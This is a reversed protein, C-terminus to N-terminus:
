LANLESIWQNVKEADAVTTELPCKFTVRSPRALSEIVRSIDSDLLENGTLKILSTLKQYAVDGNGVVDFNDPNRGIGKIAGDIAADIESSNEDIHIYGEKDEYVVMNSRIPLVPIINNKDGDTDCQLGNKYVNMIAKILTILQVIALKDNLQILLGTGGGTLTNLMKIFDGVLINQFANFKDIVMKLYKILNFLASRTTELIKHLEENTKGIATLDKNRLSDQYEQQSQQEQQRQLIVDSSNSININKSNQKIKILKEEAKLVALHDKQNQNTAIPNLDVKSKTLTITGTEITGKIQANTPNSFIAGYDLKSLHSTIVGIICELPKIATLFFQNIQNIIENLFPMMLPGVLQLVLDFLSSLEIGLQMILATLAAIMRQLDPVCMFEKFFKILPCIDTTKGKGTLLNTM